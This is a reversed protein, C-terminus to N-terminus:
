GLLLGLSPRGACAREGEDETRGPAGRGASYPLQLAAVIPCTQYAGDPWAAQLFPGSEGTVAMMPTSERRREMVMVMIEGDKAVRSQWMGAVGVIVM